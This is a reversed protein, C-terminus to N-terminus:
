LEGDKKKKALLEFNFEELDRFGMRDQNKAQCM